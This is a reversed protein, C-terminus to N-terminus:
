FRIDDFIFFSNGTQLVEVYDIPMATKVGFFKLSGAPPNKETGLLFVERKEDSPDDRFHVVAIYKAINGQFDNYSFGFGTCMNEAKFRVSYNPEAGAIVVYGSYYVSNNGNIMARSVAQTYVNLGTKSTKFHATYGPTSQKLLTDNQFDAIRNACAVEDIFDKSETYVITENSNSGTNSGQSQGSQGGSCAIIVIMILLGTALFKM